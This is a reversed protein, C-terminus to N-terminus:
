DKHQPIWGALVGEFESGEGLLIAYYCLYKIMAGCKPCRGGSAKKVAEDGVDAM